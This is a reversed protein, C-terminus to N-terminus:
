PIQNEKANGNQGNQQKSQIADAVLDRDATADDLERQLEEGNSEGKTALRSRVQEIHNDHDKLKEVLQELRQQRLEEAAALKKQSIELTRQAEVQMEVSQQKRLESARKEHEKIKELKEDILRERNGEATKLKAAIDELSRPTTATAPSQLLKAARPSAAARAPSLVLEFSCNGSASTNMIFANDGSGEIPASAM